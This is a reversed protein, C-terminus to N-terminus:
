RVSPFWKSYLSDIMGNKILEALVANIKKLDTTNDKHLAISVPSANESEYVIKVDINLKDALFLGVGKPMIAARYFDKALLKISEEKTKTRKIRIKNKIGHETLIREITSQSDGTIPYNILDTLVNIGTDNALAFVVIRRNYYPHSFSLNAARFESYEIGAVCDIKTSYLMAGLVDDFNDQWIGISQNLRNFVLKLVEIDFGDPKNDSNKFQYPPFGLAAGCRKVDSWCLEHFLM